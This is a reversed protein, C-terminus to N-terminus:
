RQQGSENLFTTIKEIDDPTVYYHVPINVLHSAIYESVRLQERKHPLLVRYPYSLHVPEPWQFNGLEFGQERARKTIEPMPISTNNLINYKLFAPRKKADIEPMIYSEDKPLAAIYKQAHENRHVNVMDIHDLAVIGALARLSNMLLYESEVKEHNPTIIRNRVGSGASYIREVVGKLFPNRRHLYRLSQKQQHLYSLAMKEIEEEGRDSHILADMTQFLKKDSKLCDEGFTATLKADYVTRRLAIHELIMGYVHCKEIELPVRRYTGIVKKVPDLLEPSNVALVGGQGTTMHKEFNFSFISLDGFSGVPKGGYSAGLCQACDELVYIGRKSAISLIEDIDCPIGFLHTAIILKTKESVKREIESTDANLDKISNDVLVPTAGVDLIADIVGKFTFSQVIVEDGSSIKLTKLAILLGARAQNTAFCWPIGLYESFKSEFESITSEDTGKESLIGEIVSDTEIYSGFRALMIM